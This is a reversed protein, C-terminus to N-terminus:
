SILIPNDLLFHLHILAEFKLVFFDLIFVLRKICRGLHVSNFELDKVSSYLYSESSFVRKDSLLHLHLM